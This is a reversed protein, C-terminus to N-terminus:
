KKNLAGKEASNIRNILGLVSDIKHYGHKNCTTQIDTSQAEKLLLKLASRKVKVFDNEDKHESDDILDGEAIVGKCLASLSGPVIGVDEKHAREKAYREKQNRLHEERESDNRFPINKNTKSRNEELVELILAELRKQTLKITKM